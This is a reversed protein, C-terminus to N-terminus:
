LDAAVVVGVFWLDAAVRLNAAVAAGAIWLEAAVWLVSAFVDALMQSKKQVHQLVNDTILIKEYQFNQRSESVLQCYRHVAAPPTQGIDKM